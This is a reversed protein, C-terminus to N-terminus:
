RVAGMGRSLTEMQIPPYKREGLTPLSRILPLSYFRPNHTWIHYYPLFDTIVQHDGGLVLLTPLGQVGFLSSLAGRREVDAFPVALWPMTQHYERFSAQDRDSSVFVIECGKHDRQLTKYFEALQPTFGRCPPCWHASFYLLVPKGTLTAV